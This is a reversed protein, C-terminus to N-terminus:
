ARLDSRARWPREAFAFGGLVAVNWCVIFTLVPWFQDVHGVLQAGIWAGIGLLTGFLIRRGWGWRKGSRLVQMM